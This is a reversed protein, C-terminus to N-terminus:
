EEIDKDAFVTRQTDLILRGLIRAFRWSPYNESLQGELQKLEGLSMVFSVRVKVDDPSLIEAQAKM